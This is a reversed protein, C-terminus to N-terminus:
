AAASAAQRLNLAQGIDNIDPHSRGALDALTWALRLVRDYGRATLVGRELSQDLIRTVPPALRLQGRLIRGPVQSNNELGFARLREGQVLRAARVRAAIAETDEENGAQGFDSLSVREVQLQIDVRDLLPGSMRAAYRRRMMPTCTCELGKGSAKGCPCPNAALVLQFRAPYAATGASRHIVLEGSELPQRLADLVRREYEPAEDLFLVGRHARSAAGPRPMGSGGGIIAVSTATHHPSEFPPRRVLQRAAAPLGCLSHIATVEMAAGDDLEPLLGPLREALMTKGAGPPGTLLVHHAGAAAVELARRAEGQGSVDRMDPQPVDPGPGADSEDADRPDFDLALEQPDAGFDFALRALTRYGRVNAGPVLAAEAANAQAVVIDPYGAQVAAMVAPLIGRVPRLRGDLGLEAIFVTRDTPRIDNAARLVAMTIALDFGSGSKPLSAPILNATIKRRSLPIGSNKAASRIRERAENLSADPLGLILFNPLTQGIDAEVEVIYGNLGVLAVSYTRGLAM